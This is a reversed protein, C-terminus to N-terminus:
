QRNNQQRNAQAANPEGFAIEAASEADNADPVPLQNLRTSQVEAKTAKRNQENNAM